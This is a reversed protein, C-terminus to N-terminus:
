DRNQLSALLLVLRVLEDLVELRRGRLLDERLVAEPRDVLLHERLRRDRLLERLAGTEVRDVVLRDAPPTGGVLLPEVKVATQHDLDLLCDSSRRSALVA